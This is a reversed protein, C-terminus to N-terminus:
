LYQFYWHDIGLAKVRKLNFFILKHVVHYILAMEQNGNGLKPTKVWTKVYWSDM